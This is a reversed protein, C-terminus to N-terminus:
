VLSSCTRATFRRDRHGAVRIIASGTVWPRGLLSSRVSVAIKRRALAAAASGSVLTLEEAREQAFGARELAL